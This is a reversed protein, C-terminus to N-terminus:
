ADTDLILIRKLNYKEMAYRAVIVVDNYICFGEGY